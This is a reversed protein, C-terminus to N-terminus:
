KMNGKTITERWVTSMKGRGSRLAGRELAEFVLLLALDTDESWAETNQNGLDECYALPSYM